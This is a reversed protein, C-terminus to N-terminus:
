EIRPREPYLLLSIQSFLIVEFIVDSILPYTLLTLVQICILRMDAQGYVGDEHQGYMNTYGTTVM